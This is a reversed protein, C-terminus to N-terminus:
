GPPGAGALQGLWSRAVAAGVTYYPDICRGLSLRGCQSLMMAADERDCGFDAEMWRILERCAARTASGIPGAHGIAMIMRENELRPRDIPWGKILDVRITTLSAFGISTGLFGGEGACARSDGLFLHAGAARVPLYTISGPGMDVLDMRGGQVTSDACGLTGIHPRYPLTLRRSWYVGDEDIDVRRPAGPRAGAPLLDAVAGASAAARCTGRPNDGRPLMSEIHVAIADGPEAGEVRITGDGSPDAGDRIEVVVRDGPRIRLMPAGDAAAALSGPRGAAAALRYQDPTRGTGTGRTHMISANLWSM